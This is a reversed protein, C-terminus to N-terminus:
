FMFKFSAVVNSSSIDKVEVQNYQVDDTSLYEYGLEAGWNDTFNYTVGAALKYAWVTEDVDYDYASVTVAAGGIGGGAFVSFDDAFPIDVYANALLTNIQVDGTKFTQGGVGRVEFNNIDNSQTAFEAEVKFWEIHRGIAAAFGYGEETDVQVLNTIDMDAMRTYKGSIKVYNKNFALAPSAALMCTLATLACVTKIM